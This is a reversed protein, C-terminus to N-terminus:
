EAGTLINRIQQEEKDIDEIIREGHAQGIEIDGKIRTRLIRKIRENSIERAKLDIMIEMHDKILNNKKILAKNMKMVREFTAKQTIFAFRDLNMYGFTIKLEKNYDDWTLDDCFYALGDTTELTYQQGIVEYKGIIKKPILWKTIEYKSEENREDVLRVVIFLDSPPHYLKNTLFILIVSSLVILVISAIVGINEGYQGALIQTDLFFALITLALIPITHKIKEGKETRRIPIRTETEGQATQDQAEEKIKRIRRRELIGM